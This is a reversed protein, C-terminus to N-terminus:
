LISEPKKIVLGRNTISIPMISEEHKTARMKEISLTRNMTSEGQDYTMLIVGDTMFESVKDSSLYISKQPIESIVIATGPMKKLVMILRHVQFRTMLEQSINPMFSSLESVLGYSILEDPSIPINALPSLSDVIIRKADFSEIERKILDIHTEGEALQRQTIDIFIFKVLGQKELEKFDMGFQNAQAYLDSINQEFSIYLGKHNYKTAGNYLFQMSFISKGTGPSGTVLINNGVPFGGQVLEDFGKIGTPEREM